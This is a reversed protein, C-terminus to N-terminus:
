RSFFVETGERWTSFFFIVEDTSPLNPLILSRCDQLGVRDIPLARPSSGNVASTPGFEVERHSHMSFPSQVQSRGNSVKECITTDSASIYYM